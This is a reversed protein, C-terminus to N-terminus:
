GPQAGNPPRIWIERLRAQLIPEAHEYDSRLSRAAPSARLEVPLQPESRLYRLCAAFASFAPAIPADHDALASTWRNLATRLQDARVESRELDWLRKVLEVPDGAALAGRVLVTGPVDISVTINAPRMWVGPRLEGMRAGVMASRFRRRETAPRTGGVTTASWWQRDWDETPAMRGADQERQREVMRGALRYRGDTATVEGSAAMRSLATRLTGAPIAFSSGLAVLAAVPLEPPHSGLLASLVVSRANLPRIGLEAAVDDTTM